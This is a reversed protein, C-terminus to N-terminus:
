TYIILNPFISTKMSIENMKIAQKNSCTQIKGSKWIKKCVCLHVYVSFSLSLFLSLSPPSFLSYFWYFTTSFSLKQNGNIFPKM